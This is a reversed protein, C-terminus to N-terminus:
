SFIKFLQLLFLFGAMRNKTDWLYIQYESFTVLKHYNITLVCVQGTGIPQIKLCVDRNSSGKIEGLSRLKMWVKLLLIINADLLVCKLM